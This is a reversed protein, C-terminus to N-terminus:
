AKAEAITLTSRARTEQDVSLDNRSVEIHLRFFSVKQSSLNVQGTRWGVSQWASSQSHESSAQNSWWAPYTYASKPLSFGIINGIESFTLTVQEVNLSVLYSSLKQYKSM